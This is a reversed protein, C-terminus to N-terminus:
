AGKKTVYDKDTNQSFVKTTEKFKKTAGFIVLGIKHNGPAWAVADDESALAYGAALADAESQFIMAHRDTDPDILKDQNSGISYILTFNKPAYGLYKFIAISKTYAYFRAKPRSEMIAFWARAYAPSYFDGSAHIRIAFSTSRRSHLATLADLEALLVPVFDRSKSLELSRQRYAMASPYRKQEGLAFCYVKCVGAGPCTAVAPLNFAYTYITSNKLKGNTQLFRLKSM